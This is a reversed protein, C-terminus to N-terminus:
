AATSQVTPEDEGRPEFETCTDATMSLATRKRHWRESWLTLAALIGLGSFLLVASVQAEPAFGVYSPDRLVVSIGTIGLTIETRM